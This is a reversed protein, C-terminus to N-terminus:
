CWSKDRADLERIDLSTLTFGQLSHGLVREVRQLRQQQNAEKLAYREYLAHDGTRKEVVEGSLSGDANLKFMGERVLINNEPPQLATHILEGGADTILMAYTDQLESRLDGLPTYEDTPDFILYRKGAKSRLTSHYSDV